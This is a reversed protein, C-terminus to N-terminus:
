KVQPELFIHVHVYVGFDVDGQCGQFDDLHITLQLQAPPRANLVDKSITRKHPSHASPAPPRLGRTTDPGRLSVCFAASGHAKTGPLSRSSVPFGLARQPLSLIITFRTAGTATRATSNALSHGPKEAPGLAMRVDSPSRKGPDRRRREARHETEHGVGEALAVLYLVMTVLCRKGSVAERVFESLCPFLISLIRIREADSNSIVLLQFQPALPPWAQKGESGDTRRAWHPVPAELCVKGGSM